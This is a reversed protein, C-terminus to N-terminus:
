KNENPWKLQRLAEFLAIAVSNSLNLSAVKDTRADVFNGCVDRALEPHLQEHNEHWAQANTLEDEQLMPIRRCYEPYEELLGRDLGTSEKGFILYDHDHYAVDSYRTQATKTFLHINNAEHCAFAKQASPNQELFAEWSQYTTTNLSDWFALGARKLAKDDLSFAPRILHLQAHGLVCTRGINGTNAPIEPEVLVVHLM